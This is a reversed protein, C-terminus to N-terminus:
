WEIVIPNLPKYEQHRDAALQNAEAESIADGPKPKDSEAASKLDAIYDQFSYKPGVLERHLRIQERQKVEREKREDAQAAAAAALLVVLALFYPRFKM